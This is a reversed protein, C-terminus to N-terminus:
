SRGDEEKKSLRALVRIEGELKLAEQLLAQREQDLANIRNVVEVQRQKTEELEKAIDM